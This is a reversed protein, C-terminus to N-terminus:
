RCVRGHKINPINCLSYKSITVSNKSEFDADIDVDARFSIQFDEVRKSAITPDIKNKKSILDFLGALVSQLDPPVSYTPTTTFGWQATVEIETQRDFRCDFVLSNYWSRNRKDWQRTSYNSSGITEGDIKVLSVSRFIDVFATSYGERLDFVRAESAPAISTCIMEELASTAIDLYLTLNTVETPTLPRGLLSELKAQNM